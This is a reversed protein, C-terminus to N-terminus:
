HIRRGDCLASRSAFHELSRDPVRNIQYIANEAMFAFLDLFQHWPGLIQDSWTPFHKAILVKSEDVLQDFTRDDLNPIPLPM